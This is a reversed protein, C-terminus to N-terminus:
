RTEEGMVTRLLQEPQAEPNQTTPRLLTEKSAEPSSPLLLSRRYDREEGQQELVALCEQAAQHYRRNDKGVTLRRVPEIARSDGIQELAKLIALPLDKFREYPLMNQKRVDLLALLAEMQGCSIYRADSAKLSPLLKLLTKIYMTSRQTSQSRQCLQAIAGAARPDASLETILREFRERRGAFLKLYMQEFPLMALLLPLLTIKFLFFPIILYQQSIPIHLLRVSLYVVYYACCSKYFLLYRKNRRYKREAEQGLESLLADTKAHSDSLADTM